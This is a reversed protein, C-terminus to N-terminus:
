KESERLAEISRAFKEERLKKIEALLDIVHVRGLVKLDSLLLEAHDLAEYFKIIDNKELAAKAKEIDRRADDVASIDHQADKLPPMKTELKTVESKQAGTLNSYQRSERGALYAAGIATVISLAGAIGLLKRKLKRKRWSELSITM